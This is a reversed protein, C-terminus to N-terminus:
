RRSSSQGSLGEPQRQSQIHQRQQMCAEGRIHRVHNLQAKAFVPCLAEFGVVASLQGRQGFGVVGEANNELQARLSGADGHLRPKVIRRVRERFGGHVGVDDGRQDEDAWAVGETSIENAGVGGRGLGGHRYDGM